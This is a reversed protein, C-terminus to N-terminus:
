FTFGGRLYFIDDENSHGLGASFVSRDNLLSFWLGGGVGTHWDNSDEEELWVRGSDAFGFVGWRGPLVISISSLKLRIEANGYLSADGIFRRSRFGRVTYDPENLSGKGLGGGGIAAAEFYPYPGWLKKGGARLALTLWKGASLFASANGGAQGFSEDVDWAKPFFTGRAAFLIGHKPFTQSDRSDFSLVGHVALEGFKGVGYPQAENIFQAQGTDSDTYKGAPGISFVSKKGWPLSLSPYLVYQGASVKFFDTDHTTATENGFGYFRLVEVASGYAHVAFFSGHNERHFEGAYDVRGGKEGFAYGARLIHQSAFPHKRFGYNQRTLGYGLFIGLDGGYSLWPTGWTERTWDRPPIWPANKPPPPPTYEREDLAAGVAQNRGKSDSLKADGSASADLTDNGSGGIMRVRIGGPQGTITVKDDGGLAYLRVEQTEAKHFTRRFSPGGAGERAVTVTADGNALRKVEVREPQDTLYLDVRDALHEYYQTAIGPLADRRGKLDAILRVGDLTFWEPPMARAAKEIVEDTIQGRLTAVAQAFDERSLSAFLPRDQEWGNYTLGGIRSYRAELNQFRPDRNRGLDLVLGEYRSFAQDRDEPIPQWLPSGPFKAWRWQKRHRDWDGMFIDVLRARLLARVDVADGQGAALRRFLELHDIIETAGHFGPNTPSVASPYEAFVGVAGGFDKRFDGLAPDDPLVVMRWSPCPISVADLIGRAIVESAPHQAAMQDQLLKEILTGQLEQELIHSADKELGRFTYNKGDRGKLALGKTQQGGVRRVVSLGGAEQSLVLVEATIPTTWLSRYDSGFFARYLGGRAYRAGAVVTRTRGQDETQTAARSPPLGFAVVLVVALTLQFRRLRVM